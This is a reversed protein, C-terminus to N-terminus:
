TYKINKYQKQKYNAFYEYELLRQLKNCSKCTNPPPAYSPFPGMSRASFACTKHGPGDEGPFNQFRSVGFNSNLVNWPFM